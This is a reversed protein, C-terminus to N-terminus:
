PRTETTAIFRLVQDHDIVGADSGLGTAVLAATASGLRCAEELDLGKALGAIFGGCYADGCGTTDSVEVKFAPTRFSRGDATFTYSGESGLKFVAARAGRAIFFRAAAEPDSEGSLYAAEEISPMFYDVHPLLDDLLALTGPNPAILDFTTVLGRAKAHALLKASQGGDMAALLGTGGLHLFRADTVADFEAETVFLHDSAGRCHLAPREGNPRITLMTASTAATDTRQILRLDIGLRAYTALIFDAKEDQGLCASTATRLGLKAANMLAGAATGAPNLHIEDIFTVGGGAPITEVPRGAVDLITLGIFIADFKAM